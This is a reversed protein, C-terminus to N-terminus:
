VRLNWERIDCKLRSAAVVPVNVLSFLPTTLHKNTDCTASPILLFPFRSYLNKGACYDMDGGIYFVPM